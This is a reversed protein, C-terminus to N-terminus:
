GVAGGLRGLGQGNKSRATVRAEPEKLVVLNVTQKRQVRETGWDLCLECMSFEVFGLSVSVNRHMYVLCVSTNRDLYLTNGDRWLLVETNKFFKKNKVTSM